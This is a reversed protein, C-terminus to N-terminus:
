DHKGHCHKYKKGSGCPCVANRSVKGWTSPDSPNLAGAGRRTQVPAKRDSRTASREGGSLAAGARALEDEGTFPDDHHAQMPPLEMPQMLEDPSGGATVRFHMLTGTVQERLNALM